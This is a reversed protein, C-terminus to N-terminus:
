DAYILQTPTSIWVLYVTEIVTEKEHFIAKQILLSQPDKRNYSFLDDNADLFTFRM